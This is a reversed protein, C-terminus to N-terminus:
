PQYQCVASDQILLLLKQVMVHYVSLMLRLIMMLDLSSPTHLSRLVVMGHHMGDLKLRITIESLHQLM